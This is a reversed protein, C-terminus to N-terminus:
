MLIQTLNKCKNPTLPLTLLVIMYQQDHPQIDFATTEVDDPSPQAPFVVKEAPTFSSHYMNLTLVHDMWGFHGSFKPGFSFLDTRDLRFRKSFILWGKSTSWKERNSPDSRFPGDWKFMRVWEWNWFRATRYRRHVFHLFISMLASKHVTLLTDIATVRVDM